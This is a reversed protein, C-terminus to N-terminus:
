QQLLATLEALSIAQAGHRLGFRESGPYVVYRQTIELDDCALAFGKEPSPASSRKVEIAIDPQGGKELILDIEAGAQTRYYYPLRRPTAAQILNELCHGEYSFGCVPHGLLDHLTEIELLGHLIGSDRLYVKPAKVLRKGINGSWPRLRRLLQLDVLLDIYRDVTPNSVALAGALRAQNLTSGQQHALMTWLRGITEAPMRPAFMPVDRELYSRIFNRRWELSLRDDAALLSDPFGGRVWHDDDSIGAGRVDTIDLPAIERYVVRGALTESSQRMLDLSASGLLLFQGHRYGAQRNDDIIGRLIEFIDPARHIEDIVVLKGCQARLYGDADELRLRDSPRELDLYVAGHPWAQALQRALTTKGVQRPGLLVVAPTNALTEALKATVKRNIMVAIIVDSM